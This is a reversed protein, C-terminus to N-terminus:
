NPLQASPQPCLYLKGILSVLEKATFLRTHIANALILKLRDIKLAPVSFEGLSLDIKFGLLEV